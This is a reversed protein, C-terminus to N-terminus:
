LRCWDTYPPFPRGVLVGKKEMAPQFETIPRGIHFFIFNSQSDLYQIGKEDLFNTVIRKARDNMKISYNQFEQDQYSAIAARLGVINLYDTLYPELKKALEPTTIAYGVRLGALGHVKSATRSVIVNIGKKVLGLMSRYDPNAVYELYAEDIFVVTRKSMNKCFSELAGSDMIKATPNNPNCLYVLKTKKSISDSIKNLDIGIENDMPVRKVPMNLTDAYDNIEEFTLTPSVLEGGDIGNMLAAKKLIETSGFGIVVQSPKVGNLKAILAKFEAKAPTMSYLNSEVFAKRMAKRAIQSPGYPNENYMMRIPENTSRSIPTSYLPNYGTVSGLLTGGLVTASRNLWDRRTIHKNM